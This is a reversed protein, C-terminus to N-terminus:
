ITQLHQHISTILPATPWTQPIRIIIRRTHHILKAPTHWLAWRLTKPRARRLRTGALTLHQFWRLHTDAWTVLALWAHNTEYDTFPFRQAGSTKLRAIHDEVRAHARMDRDSETADAKNDTWHGWYRYDDSPFLSRQAGPHRPERRVVLRAGPPWNGADVLDTLDAVHARPESNNSPTPRNPVAPKWRPDDVDILNIAEQIPGTKRAVFSFGVRRERCKKAFTPGAASDARVRIERRVTNENDGERHGVRIHEPLVAIAEDLVQVHDAVTNAGANGPRLLVSLCEGSLDSFCYIPHFGYSRKYTPAAGEKNESHVVHVSADIDLVVADKPDTDVKNWVRERVGALAGALGVRTQKDISRMTRYLTSDSSVSGFLGPESRLFEVDTCCEGGGALMLMAHVLVKGRDHVVGSRDFVGSLVDGVGLRDAFGGLLWLGVHGVVGSDDVEVRLRKTTSTVKMM